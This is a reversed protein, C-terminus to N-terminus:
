DAAAPLVGRNIGVRLPHDLRRPDFLVFDSLGDGDLDGFRVRGGTDLKQRAVRERFPQQRAGLYVELHDGDGSTLLDRLGDGNLDADLTPIFGAPRLTEFSTRLSRQDRYWPDGAFLSKGSARYISTEVDLSRTVLAEVLELIGLSIRVRMLESREDGDLDVFLISEVAGKEQFTRDPALLDWRGDRNLHLTTRSRANVLGESSSTIVLDARGDADLDHAAVRVSGSARVHDEESIRGLALARDPELPFRGDPRQRFVRLEHRNSAPM